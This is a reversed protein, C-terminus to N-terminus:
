LSANGMQLHKAVESLKIKSVMEDHHAAKYHQLVTEESLATDYLAFEDISGAFGGAYGLFINGIAAVELGALGKQRAAEKGNVYLILVNDSRVAVIHNWEGATLAGESTKVSNARNKEDVIRFAVIGNPATTLYYGGEREAFPSKKAALHHGQSLNDPRCWLEISFDEAGPEFIKQQYIEVYTNWGPTFHFANGEIGAAGPTVGKAKGPYSGKTDLIVGWRKILKHGGPVTLRGPNKSTNVDSVEQVGKEEFRWRAILGPMNSVETDYEGAFVPVCVLLLALVIGVRIM